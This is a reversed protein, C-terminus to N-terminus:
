RQDVKRERTTHIGSRATPYGARQGMFAVRTAPSAVRTYLFTARPPHHALRTLRSGKGDRPSTM